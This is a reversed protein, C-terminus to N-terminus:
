DKPISQTLSRHDNKIGSVKNCVEVIQQVGAAAKSARIMAKQTKNAGMAKVIDKSVRNCIEQAMDCAINNGEGGHWNVFRGWTLRHAMEQSVLAEIQAISVFM